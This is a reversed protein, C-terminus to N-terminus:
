IEVTEEGGFTAMVVLLNKFNQCAKRVEDENEILTSVDKAEYSKGQVLNEIFVTPVMEGKLERYLLPEKEARYRTVLEQEQPTLQVRCTLQFMAGKNGGLLGKQQRQDRQILLKM